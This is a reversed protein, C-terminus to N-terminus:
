DNNEKDYVNKEWTALAITPMVIIWWRVDTLGAGTLGTVTAGLYFGWFM